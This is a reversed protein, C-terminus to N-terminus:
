KEYKTNDFGKLAQKREICTACVGCHFEGGNYCSYTKSFDVGIEKGIGAIDAKTINTYPAFINVESETGVIASNNFLRIFDPRCDPYIHHDGSHNAIFVKDLGNSEALGVSISLMIGNRFPVVTKKMDEECYQGIPIDSGSKLLDSKFHKGIFGLDIVIHPISLQKCNEIACAIEMQNHKSGYDFSVALGIQQKFNHLMVTSDMGGSYVLLGNM